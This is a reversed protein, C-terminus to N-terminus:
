SSVVAEDFNSISLLSMIRDDHFLQFGIGLGVCRIDTGIQLSIGDTIIPFGDRFGICCCFLLSGIFVGPALSKTSTRQRSSIGSFVGVLEYHALRQVVIICRNGFRALSQSIDACILRGTLIQPSEICLDFGICICQTIFSMVDLVIRYRIICMHKPKVAIAICAIVTSFATATQRGTEEGMCVPNSRRYSTRVGTNEVLIAITTQVEATCRSQGITSEVDVLVRISRFCITAYGVADNALGIHSRIRIRSDDITCTIGNRVRIPINIGLFHTRDSAAQTIRFDQALSQLISNRSAASLDHDHTTAVRNVFCVHRLDGTNAVFNGAATICVACVTRLQVIHFTEISSQSVALVIVDDARMIGYGPCTCFHVLGIDDKTIIM